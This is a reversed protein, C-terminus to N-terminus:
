PAAMGPRCAPSARRYRRHLWGAELLHNERGKKAARSKVRQESIATILIM